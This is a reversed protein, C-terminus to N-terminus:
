ARVLKVSMSTGTLFPKLLDAMVQNQKLPAAPEFYEVELVDVKKRKVTATPEADLKGQAAKLALIACAKQVEVPVVDAAVDFKDVVVGIRPWDLAQTSTARDGKWLQRYDAILRETAVRLHAEKQTEELGAWATNGRGAHYQDAYAVTCYSEADPLGVGTETILAM